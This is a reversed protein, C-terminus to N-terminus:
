KMMHKLLMLQTKLKPADAFSVAQVEKLSFRGGVSTKNQTITIHLVFMVKKLMSIMVIFNFIDYKVGGHGWRFTQMHLPTNTTVTTAPLCHHPPLYPSPFLPLPKNIETTNNKKRTVAGGLGESFSLPSFFFCSAPLMCPFLPPPSVPVSSSLRPTIPLLALLPWLAPSCRPLPPRSPCVCLRISASRTDSRREDGLCHVPQPRQRCCMTVAVTALPTRVSHSHCLFLRIPPNHLFFSPTGGWHTSREKNTRHARDHADRHPQHTNTSRQRVGHDETVM